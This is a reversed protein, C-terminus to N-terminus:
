SEGGTARRWTYLATHARLVDGGDVPTPIGTALALLSTPELLVNVAAALADGARVAAILLCVTEGDVSPYEGRPHAAALAELRDLLVSLPETNM